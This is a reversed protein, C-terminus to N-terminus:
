VSIDVLSGRPLNPEPVSNLRDRTEIEDPTLVTGSLERPPLPPLPGPENELARARLTEENIDTQLLEFKQDSFRIDQFESQAAFLVQDARRTQQGDNVTQRRNQIAQALGENALAQKKAARAQRAVQVPRPLEERQLLNRPNIQAQIARGGGISTIEAM